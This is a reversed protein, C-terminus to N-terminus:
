RTSHQRQLQASPQLYIFMVNNDNNHRRRLIEYHVRFHEVTINRPTFLTAQRNKTFLVLYLSTSDTSWSNVERCFNWQKCYIRVEMRSKDYRWEAARTKHSM